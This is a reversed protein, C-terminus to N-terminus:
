GGRCGAWASPQAGRPPARRHCLATSCRRRGTRHDRSPPRPRCGREGRRDLGSQSGRLLPWARTGGGTERTQHAGAGGCRGRPARHWWSGPGARVVSRRTPVGPDGGRTGRARCGGASRAGHVGADCRAPPCWGGALGGEAHEAACTRDSGRPTCRGAGARPARCADVRRQRHVRGWSSAGGVAVV